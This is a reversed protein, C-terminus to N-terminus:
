VAIKNTRVCRVASATVPPMAGGSGPVTTLQQEGKMAIEGGNACSASASAHDPSSRSSGERSQQAAALTTWGSLAVPVPRPVSAGSWTCYRSSRDDKMTQEPWSSCIRSLKRCCWIVTRLMNRSSGLLTPSPPPLLPPIPYRTACSTFAYRMVGAHMCAGQSM